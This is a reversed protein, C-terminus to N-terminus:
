QEYNLEGSRAKIMADVEQEGYLRNMITRCWAECERRNEARFTTKDFPSVPDLNRGQKIKEDMTRIDSRSYMPENIVLDGFTPDDQLYALYNKHLPQNKQFQTPLIGLIETREERPKKRNEMNVKTLVGTLGEMCKTELVAPILVHTAARIASLTLAGLSPPTDIIVLDWGMDRVEPLNFFNYLCAQVEENTTSAAIEKIHGGHPPLITVNEHYTDYPYVVGYKFIDTVASYGLFEPDEKLIEDKEPHDHPVWEGTENKRMGIYRLSLNAQEDMDVVLIKLGVVAAAYPALIQVFTSKSVGGKQNAVTLIKM